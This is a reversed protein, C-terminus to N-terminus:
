SQILPHPAHKGMVLVENVRLVVDYRATPSPPYRLIPSTVPWPPQTPSLHRIGFIVPPPPLVPLLLLLLRFISPM